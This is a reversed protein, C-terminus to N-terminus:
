AARSGRQAHVCPCLRSSDSRPEPLGKAPALASYRYADSFQREFTHYVLKDVGALRAALVQLLAMLVKNGGYAGARCLSHTNVLSLSLPVPSHRLGTGWNGTHIIV